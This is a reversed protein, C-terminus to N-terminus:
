RKLWAARIALAQPTATSDSTMQVVTDDTRGLVVPIEMQTGRRLVSLVVREGSARGVLRGGLWNPGALNALAVQDIPVSDVAVILDGVQIDARDIVTRPDAMMRVLRGGPTKNAVGFGKIYGDRTRDTRSLRYGAFAFVSDFPPKETGTVFRAFFDHYDRGAVTSVTHIMDDPTFGRGKLYHEAYLARMVDDLGRRGQTDHLISLDLLAGVLEGGMSFASPDQGFSGDSPSVALDDPIREVQAIRGALWARFRPEGFGELGARYALKWQYYFTLGESVWLSPGPTARSYDYPWMEAPRIRKVNWLHFFEHAANGGGDWGAALNSNAHEISEGNQDPVCFFIYRDYPLTGFLARSAAIIKTHTEIQRAMDGTCDASAAPVQVMFHPKGEAEFRTVDFSGLVTPADVLEDFNAATYRTSDATERLASVVKWGTPVVFRVTSPIDRHGIPELFIQTGTFLAYRDTIGASNWSPDQAVYDFEVIVSAKGATTIRWRSRDVKVARLSAGASDRVRFRLVNSAYDRVTYVGPTWVPLAVDLTPQRLNSFAATVHFL